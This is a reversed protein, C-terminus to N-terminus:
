KGKEALRPLEGEKWNRDLIADRLPDRETWRVLWEPPGGGKGHLFRTSGKWTPWEQFRAVADLGLRSAECLRKEIQKFAAPRVPNELTKPHRSCPEAKKTRENALWGWAGHFASNRAQKLENMIAHFETAERRIVDDAIKSLGNKLLDLKGGIPKDGILLERQDVTIGVVHILLEGLIFDNHGWLVAIRGLQAHQKDTLPSVYAPMYRLSNEAM